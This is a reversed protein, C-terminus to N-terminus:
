GKLVFMKIEEESAILIIHHLLPCRSRKDNEYTRYKWVIQFQNSMNVIFSSDQTGKSFAKLPLIALKDVNSM